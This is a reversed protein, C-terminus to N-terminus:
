QQLGYRDRALVDFNQPRETLNWQKWITDWSNLSMALPSAVSWVAEKGREVSPAPKEAAFVATESLCAFFILAVTLSTLRM